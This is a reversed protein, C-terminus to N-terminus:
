LVPVFLQTFRGRQGRLIATASFGNEGPYLESLRACGILGGWPLLPTTTSISPQQSQRPRLRGDGDSRASIIKAAVPWTAPM